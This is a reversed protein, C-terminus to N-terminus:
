QPYDYERGVWRKFKQYDEPTGIDFFNDIEMFGIIKEGSFIMSPLVEKEFSVFKDKEIYDFVTPEFIYFGANIYSNINCIGKEIIKVIRNTEGLCVQGYRSPDEVKTIAISAIANDKKHAALFDSYNIDMYSDANLVCFTSSITNRLLGIAGGTGLPQKEVSYSIEVGWNSGDGFYDHIKDAMYHVCLTIEKIGMKKLNNIIIELFPHGNIPALPKPISDVVSRLRTGFGGALILANM